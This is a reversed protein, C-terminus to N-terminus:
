SLGAKFFWARIHISTVGGNWRLVTHGISLIEKELNSGREGGQKRHVEKLESTNVMM